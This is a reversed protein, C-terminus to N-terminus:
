VKRVPIFASTLVLNTVTLLPFHSCTLQCQLKTSSAPTQQKGGNGRQKGAPLWAGGEDGTRGKSNRKQLPLAAPQLERLALNQCHRMLPSSIRPQEYDRTHCSSLDCKSRACSCGNNCGERLKCPFNQHQCRPVARHNQKTSATGEGVGRQKLWENEDNLAKEPSNRNKSYGKPILSSSSLAEVQAEGRLQVCHECNNTKRRSIKEMEWKYTGLKQCRALLLHM